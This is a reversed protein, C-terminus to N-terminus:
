RTNLTIEFCAGTGTHVVRIRGGTDEIIRASITLGLGLGKGPDKTTYFPEFIRKVLAPDVGPGNDLVRLVVKDGESMATVEIRKEDQDEVAHLSNALLNVVVQQLLVTNARVGPLDPPLHIDFRVKEETFIPVLVELAGDIVGHLPVIDLRGSSKRAFIKLQMALRAMRDTLESIQDLNWHVDEMRGKTLFQNANDTYARIAALPQNLEHTIATSMQGLAALKAAHILERRTKHLEEEANRRDQIEQRLKLNTATLAATRESVRLELAENADELMRRSNEAFRQRELVQQQHQWFLVMSLAGLGGAGLIALLTFVVRREVPKFDSLIYVQWGAHPMSAEQQLFTKMKNERELFLKVIKGQAVEGEEVLKLPELPANPYRQSEVMQQRVEPTLPKLTKFRWEEQTTIFIVGEPDAVLFTEDKDGWNEEVMNINIKIVVAGLITHNNRVPYAFYYGRESSASGLAFYRGLAGEMAQKFYPRYSFNRGVFPKPTNWNSAAITLGDSNMLYTDSADSINNITELYLNLANIRDQSGPNLLFTVLQKNTALLEPLGEYKELVGRLYSIYLELRVESNAALDSLGQRYAMKAGLWLSSILLLAFVPIITRFSRLGRAIRTFNM